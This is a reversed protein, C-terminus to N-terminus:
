FGLRDVFSILKSINKSMDDDLASTIKDGKPNAMNTKLSPNGGVKLVAENLEGEYIKLLQDFFGLLADLDKDDVKL